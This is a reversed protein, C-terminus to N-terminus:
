ALKGVDTNEGKEPSQLKGELPEPTGWEQEESICIHKDNNGCDAEKQEANICGIVYSVKV